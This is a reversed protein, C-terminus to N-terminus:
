PDAKGIDHLAAARVVTERLREPLECAFKAAWNACGALHQSLPFELTYSAGRSEQEFMARGIAAAWSIGDDAPNEVFKTRRRCLEGVVEKVWDKADPDLEGRLADRTDTELETGRLQRAFGAYGWREALKPHLRLMPHGLQAKFADGIDTVETLSEPNWGWDDCGGYAAPAVITMGPQIEKPDALVKSDEEGLWALVCGKENQGTVPGSGVGELDTLGATEENALWKRVAWVPLAIAEAATPPCISVVRNWTEAPVQSVELDQRWVVQVDAPDTNPGHLFVAPEPLAAPEPSTQSLLDVHSPMLVPAHSRPM